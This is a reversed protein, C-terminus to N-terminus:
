RHAAASSSATSTRLHSGKEKLASLIERKRFDHQDFINKFAELLRVSHRVTLEFVATEDHFLGIKTSTSGPNITLIRCPEEGRGAEDRKKKTM